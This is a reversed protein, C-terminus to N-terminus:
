RPPRPSLVGSHSPVLVCLPHSRSFFKLQAAGADLILLLLSSLITQTPLYPTSNFCLLVPVVVTSLFHVPLALPLVAFFLFDFVFAFCVLIRQVNILIPRVFLGFRFLANVHFDAWAGM